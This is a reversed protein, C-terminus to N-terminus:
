GGLRQQLYPNMLGPQIMPRFSQLQYLKATTEPTLFNIKGWHAKFTIGAAVLANWLGQLHRIMTVKDADTLYDTLYQFNLKVIYPLGPWNWASMWYSDTRTCEIEIPLNPWQNATFYSTCVSMVQPLDAPAFSWEAMAVHLPALRDCPIINRMPGSATTTTYNGILYAYAASLPLNLFPGNSLIAQDLGMLLSLLNETGDVPYDGNPDNPQPIPQATWLLGQDDGPPLWEIRWFDYTQTTKALDGLVSQLSAAQFTGQYFLQKPLTFGVRTMFGILGLSCIAGAFNPDTSNIRVTQLGGGGPGPPPPALFEVWNLTEYVSHNVTAGATNTSILGALTQADTGGLATLSLGAQAARHLFDHAHMFASATVQGTAADAQFELPLKTTDIVVDARYIDSCSHLGGLVRLPPHSGAPILYATLLAKLEDMSRPTFYSGPTFALVKGWDAVVPATHAYYNSPLAETM